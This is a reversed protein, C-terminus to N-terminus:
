TPEPVYDIGIDLATASHTLAGVAIRDVGTQAIAQVQYLSIGGSAELAILSPFDLQNRRRVAEQMEEITFNDLLIVDVGDVKLLENLQALNDVEFEIFDPPPTNAQARAVIHSAKDALQPLPIDAIHNDKILVADHLGLRHNFGGGCRVAYKDLYRWGPITKRTDYIKAQTGAVSQVYRNTASAIGCLRQLFNLLSRELQLLLRRPGSVSAIRTGEQLQESDSVRSHVVLQEAYRSQLFDLVLRGAFVGPMRALIDATGKEDQGVSSASTVDADAGDEALAQDWLKELQQRALDDSNM